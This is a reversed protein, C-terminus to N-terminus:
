YISSKQHPNEGYRLKEILNAHIIKKKPFLTNSSRSLYDSILSDYYTTETFAIQSMKKRFEESTSGNNKNLELMLDSYNEKSSIVTVDNYNKAAARVMTPGGIDINEIIKKHNKTKSLTKEFPYFNVIVM